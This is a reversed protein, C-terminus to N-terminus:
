IEKFKMRQKNFYKNDNVIIPREDALAGDHAIMM